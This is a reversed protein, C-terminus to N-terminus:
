QFDSSEVITVKAVAAGMSPSGDLTLAMSATPAPKPAEAGPKAAEDGEKYTTKVVETDPQNCGISAGMVLTLGLPLVLTKLTRMPRWQTTLGRVKTRFTEIPLCEWAPVRFQRNNM